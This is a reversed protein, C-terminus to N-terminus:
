KGAFLCTPGAMVATVSSHEKNPALTHYSCPFGVYQDRSSATVWVPKEADPYGWEAVQVLRISAEPLLIDEAGSDWQVLCPWHETVLVM